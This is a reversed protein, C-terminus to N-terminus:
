KVPTGDGAAAPKLKNGRKKNKSNLKEIKCFAYILETLKVNIPKKITLLIGVMERLLILKELFNPGQINNSITTIQIPIIELKHIVKDM